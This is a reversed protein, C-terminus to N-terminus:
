LLIMTDGQSLPCALGSPRMTTTTAAAAAPPTSCVSRARGRCAGGRGSCRGLVRVRGEGETEEEEEEAAAGWIQAVFGPWFFDGFFIFAVCVVLFFLFYFFWLVVSLSGRARWRAPSVVVFWRLGSVGGRLLDAGGGGRDTRRHSHTRARSLSRRRRRRAGQAASQKRSRTTNQKSYWYKDRAVRAWRVRRSGVAGRARQCTPGVSTPGPPWQRALRRPDALLFFIPHRSRPSFTGSWIHHSIKKKNKEEDDHVAARWPGRAPRHAVGGSGAWRDHPPCSASVGVHSVPPGPSPPPGM